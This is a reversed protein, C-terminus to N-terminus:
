PGLQALLHPAMACRRRLRQDPAPQGSNGSYSSSRPHLDLHTDHLNLSGVIQLLDDVPLDGLTMSRSPGIEQRVGRPKAGVMEVSLVLDTHEYLAGVSIQRCPAGLHVRWGFSLLASWWAAM